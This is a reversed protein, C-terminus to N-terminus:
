CQILGSDDCVPSIIMEVASELLSPEEPEGGGNNTNNNQNQSDPPSENQPSSSDENPTPASVPDRLNEPVEEGDPLEATEACHELAESDQRESPELLSLCIIFRVIKDREKEAQQNDIEQNHRTEETINKIENTLGRIQENQSKLEGLVFVALLIVVLIPAIVTWFRLSEYHNHIYLQIRKLIKRM